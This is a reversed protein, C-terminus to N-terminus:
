REPGVTRDAREEILRAAEPWNNERLEGSAAYLVDQESRGPWRALIADALQLPTVTIGTDFALPGPPVTHTKLFREIHRAMQERSPQVPQLALAARLGAEVRQGILGADDAEQWAKRFAEVMKPSPGSM